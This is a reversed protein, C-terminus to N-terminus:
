REFILHGAEAAMIASPADPHDHGPIQPALQVWALLMSQGKFMSEFLRAYFEGFKAGKRDITMAINASWDNRPGISNVYVEPPNEAALVTVYAGAKKITERIPERSGVVTGDPHITLASEKARTM